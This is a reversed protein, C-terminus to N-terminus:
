IMLTESVAFLGPFVAMFLVLVDVSVAVTAATTIAVVSVAQLVLGDRAVAHLRGSPVSRFLAMALARKSRSVPQSAWNSAYKWRRSVM